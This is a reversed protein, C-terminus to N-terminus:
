VLVGKGMEYAQSVKAETPSILDKSVFDWYFKKIPYLIITRDM